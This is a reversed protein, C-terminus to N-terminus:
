LISVHVVEAGQARSVSTDRRALEKPPTFDRQPRAEPIFKHFKDSIEM